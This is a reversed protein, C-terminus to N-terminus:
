LGYTLGVNFGIARNFHKYSDSKENSTTLQFRYEPMFLVSMKKGLNLQVGINAVASLAFSNFGNQTKFEETTENNVADVFVQDQKYNLFMKPVLGGGAYFRVTNGYTFFAKVPMTIYSYTTQYSHLTDVGEFLYFEGNQIYTIGGEWTLYEHVRQKIGIGFSWTNLFSEDGRTGLPDAYIGNNNDNEILKRSNRSWNAIVFFETTSLPPLIDLSVEKVPETLQTDDSIEIQSFVMTTMLSLTFVLSINRINM